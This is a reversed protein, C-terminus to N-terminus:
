DALSAELELLGQAIAKCVSERMSQIKEKHQIFEPELIVTTCKTGRLTYIIGKSKKQQYFGEKIGRDKLAYAAVMKDQLTQAVKKGRVSTPYYLTECGEILTHHSMVASNFHVEVFIDQKSCRCNVFSTKLAVVNPTVIFLNEGVTKHERVLYNKIVEVWRAAEDYECFGEHCAGAKEPYHGAAIFFNM